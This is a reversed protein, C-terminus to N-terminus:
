YFLLECLHFSLAAVWLFDTISWLARYPLKLWWTSWGRLLRRRHRWQLRGLRRPEQDRRPRDASEPDAPRRTRLPEQQGPLDSRISLASRTLRDKFPIKWHLADIKIIKLHGLCVAARSDITSHQGIELGLLGKATPNM